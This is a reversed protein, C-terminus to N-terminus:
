SIIARSISHTDLRVKSTVPHSPEDRYIHTPHLTAVPDMPSMDPVAVLDTDHDSSVPTLPTSGYVSM